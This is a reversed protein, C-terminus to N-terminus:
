FELVKRLFYYRSIFLILIIFFEFKIVLFFVKSVGLAGVRGDGLYDCIKSKEIFLISFV